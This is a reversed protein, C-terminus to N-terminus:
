AAEPRAHPISILGLHRLVTATDLYTTHKVIKGNRFQFSVCSDIDFKRGTPEYDLFRGTNTGVFNFELFATDGAVHLERITMHSDKSMESLDRVRAVIHDQGVLTKKVPAQYLVADESYLSRLREPDKSNLIEVVQEVITRMEQETM